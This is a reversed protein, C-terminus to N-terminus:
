WSHIAGQLLLMTVIEDKSIEFRFVIENFNGDDIFSRADTLILTEWSIIPVLSGAEIDTGAFLGGDEVLVLFPDLRM